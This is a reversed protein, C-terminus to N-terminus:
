SNRSRDYEFEYMKRDCVFSTQFDDNQRPFESVQQLDQKIRMHTSVNRDSRM